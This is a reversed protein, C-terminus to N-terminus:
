PRLIDSHWRKPTNLLFHPARNKHEDEKTKSLSHLFVWSGSALIPVYQAYLFLPPLM